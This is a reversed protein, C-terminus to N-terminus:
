FSSGIVMIAVVGEVLRVLVANSSFFVTPNATVEPFELTEIVTFLINDEVAFSEKLELIAENTPPFVM